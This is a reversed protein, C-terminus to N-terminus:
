GYREVEDATPVKVPAKRAKPKRLSQMGKVQEIIKSGKTLREALELRLRALTSAHDEDAFGPYGNAEDPSVPREVMVNIEELWTMRERGTAAWYRVFLLELCQLREDISLSGIGHRKWKRLVRSRHGM